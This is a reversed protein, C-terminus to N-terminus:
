LQQWVIFSGRKSMNEVRKGHFHLLAFRFFSFIKKKTIQTEFLTFNEENKKAQEKGSKPNEITYIVLFNKKNIGFLM